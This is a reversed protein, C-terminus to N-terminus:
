PIKYNKNIILLDLRLRNHYRMSSHDSRLGPFKKRIRFVVRNRTRIEETFPVTLFLKQVAPNQRRVQFSESEIVITADALPPLITGSVFLGLLYFFILKHIGTLIVPIYWSKFIVFGPANSGNFNSKLPVPVHPLTFVIIKIKFKYIFSFIQLITNTRRYRYYEIGVKPLRSYLLIWSVTMEWRFCFHFM